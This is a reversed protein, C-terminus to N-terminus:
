AHHVQTGHLHKKKKKKRKGRKGGGKGGSKREFPQGSKPCEPDKHWHGLKGCKSCPLRQKADKTGKDRDGSSVGKKFFGRAKEIDARQKKARTLFAEAEVAAEELESPCEDWEGEDQQEEGSGDEDEDDEADYDYDEVDEPVEDEEDQNTENAGWGKKKNGPKRYGGRRFGGPKKSSNFSGSGHGGGSRGAFAERINPFTTLAAKSLAEVTYSGLAGTLVQSKSISPLRMKKLYLHAKWKGQLEGAVKEARHLERAWALNYDIIEQDKKRSFEDLFADMIKGVRYDEIPEYVEVICAKFKDVSDEVLLTAPEVNELKDFAEGTLKALLRIGRKRPEVGTTAVWLDIKRFYTTRHSSKGDWEPVDGDRDRKKDDSDRTWSAYGKWSSANSQVDEDDALGTGTVTKWDASTQHWIKIGAADEHCDLPLEFYGRKKTWAWGSLAVLEIDPNELIPTEQSSTTGGLGSTM